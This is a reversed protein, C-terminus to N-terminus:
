LILIGQIGYRSRWADELGPPKLPERRSFLDTIRGQKVRYRPRLIAPDVSRQATAHNLLSDGPGALALGAAVPRDDQKPARYPCNKDISKRFICTLVNLIRIDPVEPIQRFSQKGGGTFRDLAQETLALQNFHPLM